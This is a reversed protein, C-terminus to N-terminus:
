AAHCGFHGRRDGLQHAVLVQNLNCLFTLHGRPEAVGDAQAAPHAHSQLRVMGKVIGPADGGRNEITQQEPLFGLKGAYFAKAREFDSCPLTAHIPADELMAFEVAVDWQVAIQEHPLQALARDLDAFLAAQYSAILQEQEEPIFTGAIPATPPM